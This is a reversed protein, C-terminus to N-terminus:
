GDHGEEPTEDNIAGPIPAWKRRRRRVDNDQLHTMCVDRPAGHKDTAFRWCAREACDEVECPPLQPKAEVMVRYGAAPTEDEQPTRRFADRLAREADPLGSACALAFEQWEQPM